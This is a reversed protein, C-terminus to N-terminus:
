IFVIENTQKDWEITFPKNEFNYRENLVSANFYHTTGDFHYGYGSHIHGFVHIKPKIVDVRERLLECGVSLHGYPVVDLHGWAPGHTILIDINEPINNWKNQLEEGNRPLNFAWNHFEPQWPSGYLKISADEDINYLAMGEDQLYEITKYYGKLLSRAEDESDQMWRDHNGAILIKTDYNDIADFWQFFMVAEMPNYGSSMFDGAHILIDGGPLDIPQDAKRLSTTTTLQAHKTHTDSILTVRHKGM